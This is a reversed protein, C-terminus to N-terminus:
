RHGLLWALAAIWHLRCQVVFNFRINGTLKVRM